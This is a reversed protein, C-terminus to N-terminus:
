SGADEVRRFEVAWVWPNHERVIQAAKGKQYRCDAFAVGNEDYVIDNRHTWKGM